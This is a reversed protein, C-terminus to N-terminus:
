NLIFLDVTYHHGVVQSSPPVTEADDGIFLDSLKLYLEGRSKM